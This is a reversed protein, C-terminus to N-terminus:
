SILALNNSLRCENLIILFFSRIFLNSLTQKRAGDENLVIDKRIYLIEVNKQCVGVM